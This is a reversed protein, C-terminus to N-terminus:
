PTPNNTFTPAWQTDAGPAYEAPNDVQGCVTNADGNAAVV